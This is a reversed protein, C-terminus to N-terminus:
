EPRCNTSRDFKKWLASCASHLTFELSERPLSQVDPLIAWSLGRPVSRALSVSEIRRYLEDGREDYGSYTNLRRLFANGQNSNLVRRLRVESQRALGAPNPFANHSRHQKALRSEAEIGYADFASAAARPPEGVIWAPTIAPILLGRIKSSTRSDPSHHQRMFQVNSWGQAFPLAHFRVRRGNNRWRCITTAILSKLLQVSRLLM